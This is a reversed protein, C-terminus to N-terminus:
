PNETTKPTVILRIEGNPGTARYDVGRGESVALKFFPILRKTTRDLLVDGQEDDPVSDGASPREALEAPELARVMWTRAIRVAATSSAWALSALSALSIPASAAISVLVGYVTYLADFSGYRVDILRLGGLEPRMPRPWATVRDATELRVIMAAARRLATDLESTQRAIGFADGRSYRQAIILGPLAQERAWAPSTGRSWPTQTEQRALSRLRRAVTPAIPHWNLTSSVDMALLERMDEPVSQALHSVSLQQHDGAVINGVATPRPLRDPPDPTSM